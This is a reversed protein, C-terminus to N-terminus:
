LITKARIKVGGGKTTEQVLTNCISATSFMIILILKLRRYVLVTLFFFLFFSTM